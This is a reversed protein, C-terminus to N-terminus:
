EFILVIVYYNSSLIFFGKIMMKGFDAGIGAPVVSAFVYPGQKHREQMTEEDDTWGPYTDNWKKEDLKNGNFEDSFADQLM